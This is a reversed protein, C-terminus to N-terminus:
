TKKAPAIRFTFIRAKGTKPDIAEIRHYEDMNDKPQFKGSKSMLSLRPEGLQYLYTDADTSTNTSDRLARYGLREFIRQFTGDQTFSHMSRGTRGRGHMVQGLARQEREAKSVARIALLEGRLEAPLLMHGLNHTRHFFSPIEVCEAPVKRPDAIRYFVLSKVPPKNIRVSYCMSGRLVIIEGNLAKFVGQLPKRLTAGEVLRLEIRRNGDYFVMNGKKLAERMESGQAIELLGAAPTRGRARKQMVRVIRRKEWKTRIGAFKQKRERM